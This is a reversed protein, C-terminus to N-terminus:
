RGFWLRHWVSCAVSGVGEGGGRGDVLAGVVTEAAAGGIRLAEVEDEGGVDGVGFGDGGSRVELEIAHMLARGAVDVSADYGREEVFGHALEVTGEIDEGHCAVHFDVVELGRREVLREDQYRSVEVTGGFGVAGRIALEEMLCFELAGVAGDEGAAFTDKDGEVFANECCGAEGGWLGLGEGASVFVLASIV